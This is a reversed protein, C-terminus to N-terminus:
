QKCTPAALLIKVEQGGCCMAPQVPTINFPKLPSAGRRATISKMQIAPMTQAAVACVKGGGCLSCAGCSEDSASTSDSSFAKDSPLASFAWSRKVWIKFRGCRVESKRNRTPICNASCSSYPPAASAKVRQM